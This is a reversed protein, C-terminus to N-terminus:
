ASLENRFLRQYSAFALVECSDRKAPTPGLSYQKQERESSASRHTKVTATSSTVRIQVSIKHITRFVEPDSDGNPARSSISSKWNYDYYGPYTGVRTNFYGLRTRPYRPIMRWKGCASVM